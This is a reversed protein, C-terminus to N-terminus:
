KLSKRQTNNQVGFKVNHKAEQKKLKKISDLKKLVMLQEQARTKLITSRETMPVNNKIMEANLVELNSLVTLEEISAFDRLNGTKAKKPNQKARQSSTIGFLSENLM